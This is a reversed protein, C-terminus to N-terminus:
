RARKRFLLWLAPLLMLAAVPYAFDELPVLGLRVGATNGQTYEMLGSGIMINDFIATLVLVVVTAILIGPWWTRLVDARDPATWLAIGLVAAAVALFVVSLLLYTM